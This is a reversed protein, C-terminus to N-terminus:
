KMCKIEVIGNKCGVKIKGRTCEGPLLLEKRYKRDGREAAFTLIDEKLDVKVDDAEVGPMEALVLIYDEEEFVDIIPERMEQVVSRGTERDRRINGFPEIRPRQGGLGVKVSFGYVGKLDKRKGGPQFRGSKSLEESKEALDGLREILDALGNFLNGLVGGPKDASAKEERKTLTEAGCFM